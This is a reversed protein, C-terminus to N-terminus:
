LSVWLGRLGIAVCRRVPDQPDPDGAEALIARHM